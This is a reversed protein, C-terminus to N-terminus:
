FKDLIFIIASPSLKGKYEKVPRNLIENFHSIKFGIDIIKQIWETLTHHYENIIKGDLTPYNIEEGKQFYNKNKLFNASRMPHTIQLFVKGDKKLVRHIENLSISIDKDHQLAYKSWVIDFFNNRWPLYNFDGELIEKKPFKNKTINVLESSVDLGYINAGKKNFFELDIGSGCGIDLLKKNKLKFNELLFNRMTNSNPYKKTYKNQFNHFDKKYKM